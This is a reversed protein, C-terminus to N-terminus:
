PKKADTAKKDAAQNALERKSLTHTRARRDSYKEEKAQEGPPASRLFEAENPNSAGCGAMSIPLGLPLVFLLWGSMLSKRLNM